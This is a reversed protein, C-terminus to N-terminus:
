GILWSSIVRALSPDNRPADTTRDSRLANDVAVRGYGAGPTAALGRNRPFWGPQGGPANVAPGVDNFDPVMACFGADTHFTAKGSDTKMDSWVFLQATTGPPGLLIGSETEDEINVDTGVFVDRHRIFPINAGTVRAAARSDPGPLQRIYADIRPMDRAVSRAILEATATALVRASDLLGLVSGLAEGLQSGLEPARALGAPMTGGGALPVTVSESLLRLHVGVDGLGDLGGPATEGRELPVRPLPALGLASLGIASLVTGLSAEPTRARNFPTALDPSASPVVIAMAGDEGRNEGPHFLRTGPRAEDGVFAPRMNPTRFLALVTPVPLGLPIPARAVVSVEEPPEVVGAIGARVRARILGMQAPPPLESALPDWAQRPVPTLQPRLARHAGTGIAASAVPSGSGDVISWEVELTAPGSGPLLDDLPLMVDELVRMVGGTADELVLTPAFAPLPLRALARADAPLPLDIRLRALRRRIAERPDGVMGGLVDILFAGTDMIRPRELLPPLGPVTRMTTTAEVTATMARTDPPPPAPLAPLTMTARWPERERDPFQLDVMGDFAVEGTARVVRLRARSTAPHFETLRDCEVTVTTTGPPVPNPTVTLPM